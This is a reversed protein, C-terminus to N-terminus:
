KDDDLRFPGASSLFNKMTVKPERRIPRIRICGNFFLSHKPFVVSKDSSIKDTLQTFRPDEEAISEIDTNLQEGGQPHFFDFEVEQLTKHLLTNELSIPLKNELVQETFSLILEKIATLEDITRNANNKQPIHCLFTHKQLSYYIPDQHNFYDLEMFIPLYYRIRYVNLFVDILEPLPAQLSNTAPIYGPIEAMALKILHKVTEVIFPGNKISNSLNESFISWVLDYMLQNNQFDTKQHEQKLLAVQLGPNSQILALAEKSFIIIETHWNSKFEPANILEKFLPWQDLFTKPCLMDPNISFSRMLRENYQEHSIKPLILLSRSGATYTYANRVYHSPILPQFLSNLNFFSGPKLISLPILHSPLNIDAELIGETVLALPLQIHNELESNLIDPLSLHGNLIVKTGFTYRVRYFSVSTNKFISEFLPSFHPLLKQFQAEVDAWKLIEIDSPTSM